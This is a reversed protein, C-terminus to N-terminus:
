RMLIQALALKFCPWNKWVGMKLGTVVTEGFSLMRFGGRVGICDYTERRM